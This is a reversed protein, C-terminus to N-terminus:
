IEKQKIKCNNFHWRKANGFNMEKECHPCQIKQKMQQSARHNIKGFNPHLIGKKGFFYSKEPNIKLHHKEGAKEKNRLTLDPRKRGFTPSERGYKGKMGKSASEPSISFNDTKLLDAVM